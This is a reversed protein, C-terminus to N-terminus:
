VKSNIVPKFSSDSATIWKALIQIVNQHSQHPLKTNMLNFKLAPFKRGKKKQRSKIPFIIEFASHLCKKMLWDPM